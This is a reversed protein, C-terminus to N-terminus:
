PKPAEAVYNGQAITTYGAAGNEHYSANAVATITVTNAAGYHNVNANPANVTFTGGLTTVDITKAEDTVLTVDVAYMTSISNATTVATNGTYYTAYTAHVEDDIVWYETGAVDYKDAIYSPTGDKLYCFLNHTADWLIENDTASANIKNVDYGFAAAAALAEEITDVNEVALATNLNKILQTDKSENAKKVLGVFTPILTAALIAIIAVVVVLEVITFGKRNLKKM